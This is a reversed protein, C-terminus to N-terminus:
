ADKNKARPLKSRKTECAHEARADLIGKIALLLEALDCSPWRSLGRIFRNLWQIFNVKQFAGARRATRSPLWCRRATVTASRFPQRPMPWISASHIGDITACGTLALLAFALAIARV